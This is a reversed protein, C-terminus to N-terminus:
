GIPFLGEVQRKRSHFGFRHAGARRKPPLPTSSRSSGSLSLSRSVNWFLIQVGL